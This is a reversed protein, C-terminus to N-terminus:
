RRWLRLFRPPLGGGIVDLMARAARDVGAAEVVQRKGLTPAVPGGRRGLGTSCFGVPSWAEYGGTPGIM